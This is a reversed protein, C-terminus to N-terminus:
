LDLPPKAWHTCDVQHRHNGENRIFDFNALCFWCFEFGCGPARCTMHDCGGNKQIKAMCKPCAKTEAKILAETLSEAKVRKQKLKALNKERKKRAKEPSEIKNPLLKTAFHFINKRSRAFFQSKSTSAVTLSSKESACQSCELGTHIPLNHIICTKQSCETCTMIPAAVGDVHIQGANCSLCWHFEPIQSLALNLTLRQYREYIAMSSFRKVDSEEMVNTCGDGNPCLIRFNGKDELEHTIHATVCSQCVNIQHVCKETAGLFSEMSIKFKEACIICERFIESPESYENGPPRMALNLFLAKLFNGILKNESKSFALGCGFLFSRVTVVTVCSLIISLANKQRPMGSYFYGAGLTMFWVLITSLLVFGADGLDFKTSNM